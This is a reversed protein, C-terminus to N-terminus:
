KAPATTSPSETAPMEHRRMMEDCRKHMEGCGMMGMQRHMQAGGHERMMRECCGSGGGNNAAAYGISLTSVGLVVAGLSLLLNKRM